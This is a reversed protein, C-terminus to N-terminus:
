AGSGARFVGSQNPIKSSSQQKGLNNIKIAKLKSHLKRPLNKQGAVQM